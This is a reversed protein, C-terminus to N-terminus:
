ARSTLGFPHRERVGIQQVLNARQGTHGIGLGPIRHQTNQRDPMGIFATGTVVKQRTGARLGVGRNLLEFLIQGPHLRNRHSRDRPQPLRHLSAEFIHNFRKRGGPLPQKTRGEAVTGGLSLGQAPRVIQHQLRHAPRSTELRSPHCAEAPRQM